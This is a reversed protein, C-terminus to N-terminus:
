YIYGLHYRERYSHKLESSGNLPRRGFPELDNYCYPFIKDVIDKIQQDDTQPSYAKVSRYAVDKVCYKHTNKLSFMKPSKVQLRDSVSCYTLNAARIESCAVHELNDFDFQARCYDFMHIMEHMMTSMITGPTQNSNQNIIIQNTDPDYGGMCNDCRECVVHRALNFNCGFKKMAGALLKLEDSREFTSSVMTECKKRRYEDSRPGLFRSARSLLTMEVTCEYREPFYQRLHEKM